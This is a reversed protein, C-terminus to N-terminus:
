IVGGMVGVGCIRESSSGCSEMWREKVCFGGFHDFELFDDVLLEHTLLNALVLVVPVGVGTRAGVASGLGPLMIKQGAAVSDSVEEM